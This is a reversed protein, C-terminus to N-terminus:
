LETEIKWGNISAYFKGNWESGRLNISVDVTEGEAIDDLLNCKDQVFEVPIHQPYKEDTTIVIIRKQFGKTGVTETAGIHKVTGKLNM